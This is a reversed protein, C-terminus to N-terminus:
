AMLLSFAYPVLALFAWAPHARRVESRSDWNFLYVALAFAAVGSAALVLLSGWPSYDAESGLALANFANMAHTAPFLRALMQAAAPLMSYPLMLGGVLMSPIFILQSVMVQFNTSPSVVGILVSIGAMAAALALTVLIFNPWSVPPPAEFLPGASFTILAAVILLHVSTTLAPIALISVSPVGNIRYSRFIGDERAKVLPDPIGMLMAALVAFVIMAPILSDLFLPNIDVMIFGMMLYFVIPFLYNLFLLQKNRIGTRFEFAFHHLFANM